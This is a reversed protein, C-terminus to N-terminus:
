PARNELATLRDQMKQATTLDGKKAAIDIGREFVERARDADGLDEIAAGLALMAASHNPDSTIAKELHDVARDFRGREAALEGLGFHALADDPDIELVQRYMGERRKQDTERDVAEQLGLSGPEANATGGFSVRTALALHHEANEIEGLHNYFLSLNSHAMVSSPDVELLRHMQEIAERHRGLRGLIVGTSEFADAWTPCIVTARDLLELAREANGDTFAASAAVTLRDAMDERSPAALLPVRFIRANVGTGDAFIPSLERGIIRFERHLLVQIWSTDDWRAVSLVRGAKARDGVSFWQGTLDDIPGDRDVLELLVPARVAGRHSAVKAVTEQGLYCGKDFSVALDLLATENILQDAQVERGWGPPGGLVGRTDVEDTSLEPLPIERDSWTVFGRSGWGSVPFTEHDPGEDAMVVAVPGLALRMPGVERPRITVDDAIINTEFRERCHDAVADPVLLDVAEARKRLFFFAQLRGTRDLLASLQSDGVALGAADSTVQSALFRERHSGTIELLSWGPFAAVGGDLDLCEVRATM